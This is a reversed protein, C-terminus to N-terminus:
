SQYNFSDDWCCNCSHKINMGIMQKLEAWIHPKYLADGQALNQRDTETLDFPLEEGDGDVTMILSKIM